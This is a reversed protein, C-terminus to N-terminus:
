KKNNAANMATCADAVAAKPDAGQDIVKSIANGFNDWYKSLEAVQPRPTGTTVAQAFQQTIPDTITIGNVAPIHGAMDVFLKEVKPSTMYLGFNVAQDANKTNANIYWGDVGTLPGAPGKPGAPIPAVALKDGLAKQFDGTGWPGEIIADVAGTKFANQFKDGDTFFQAGAAKMDQLFKLADAVGGQDAVCKGTDDLIKGGFAQYLGFQHYADNNFGFKVGSKAAALMEDTTKPPTKVKDKNYFMGVAKLSEPVAYLKGEVKSGDVSIKSYNGLKGALKDDLPLLLKARAEDGLSDNPAIFLDPGGGAASETEFKKFLQDFPVELVEIQAQPNDAKFLKLGEELAKGESSGGSAYSHWITLKGTVKPLAATSTDTSAATTAAATTAAATTAAATTAAATTAAATTAAATTAAATTAAATTAAATTAAATTAAPATTSTNDGCAALALTALVLVVLLAVRKYLKNTM